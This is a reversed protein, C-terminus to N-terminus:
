FHSCPHMHANAFCAVITYIETDKNTGSHALAVWEQEHCLYAATESENKRREKFDVKETLKTLNKLVSDKAWGGCYPGGRIHLFFIENDPKDFGPRCTVDGVGVPKGVAPMIEGEVRIEGSSASRSCAELAAVRQVM